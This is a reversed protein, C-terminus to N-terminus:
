VSKWFHHLIAHLFWPFIYSTIINSFKLEMVAKRIKYLTELSAVLRSRQMLSIWNFSNIRSVDNWHCELFQQIIPDYGRPYHAPCSSNTCLCHTWVMLGPSPTPAEFSMSSNCQRPWEADMWLTEAAQLWQSMCLWCQSYAENAHESFFPARLFGLWLMYQM